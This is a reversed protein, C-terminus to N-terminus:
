SHVDFCLWPAVWGLFSFTGMEREVYSLLIRDENLVSRSSSFMLRKKFVPFHKRWGVRSVSDILLIVWMMQSMSGFWVLLFPFPLQELSYFKLHRLLLQKQGNGCVLDYYSGVAGDLSM